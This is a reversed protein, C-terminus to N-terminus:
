DVGAQWEKTGSPAFSRAPWKQDIAACRRSGCKALANNAPLGRFGEEEAVLGGAHRRQRAYLLHLHRVKARTYNLEPQLSAHALGM